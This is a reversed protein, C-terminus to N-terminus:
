INADAAARLASFGCRPLWALPEFGLWSVMSRTTEKSIRFRRRPYHSNYRGKQSEGAVSGRWRGRTKKIPTPTPLGYRRPDAHVIQFSGTTHCGDARRKRGISYGERYTSPLELWRKASQSFAGRMTVSDRDRWNKPPLGDIQVPTYWAPGEGIAMCRGGSLPHADSRNRLSTEEFPM